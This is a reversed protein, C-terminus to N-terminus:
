SDQQVVVTGAGVQVNPLPRQASRGTEQLWEVIEMALAAHRAEDQAIAWTLQAVAHRDTSSQRTPPAAAATSASDVDSSEEVKDKGESHLTLLSHKFLRLAARGEGLLGEEIAATWLATPDRRVELNHEPLDLREIASAGAADTLDTGRLSGPFLSSQVNENLGRLLGLSVHAHVLEEEQAKIAHRLLRPPAGMVLLELCLKAFSGVSAHEALGAARWHEREEPDANALGAQAAALLRPLQPEMALTGSTEPFPNADLGFSRLAEQQLEEPLIKARGPLASLSMLGLDSSPFGWGDSQPNSDPGESVLLVKPEALLTEGNLTLPRGFVIDQACEFDCCSGIRRACMGFPCTPVVCMQRCLQQSSHICVQTPNCDRWTAGPYVESPNAPMEGHLCSIGGLLYCWPHGGDGFHDACGNYAVHNWGSTSNATCDCPVSDHPCKEHCTNGDRWQGPPCQCGRVCKEICFQPRPQGCIDECATGCEMYQLDGDCPDPFERETRSVQAVQLAALEEVDDAECAGSGQCEGVLTVDREQGAESICLAAFFVTSAFVLCAAM